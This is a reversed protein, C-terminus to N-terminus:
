SLEVEWSREVKGSRHLASRESRSWAVRTSSSSRPHPYVPILIFPTLDLGSVVLATLYVLALGAVVLLSRRPVGGLEAGRALWHPLDGDRALSAGLRAFAGLHANLVGLAVVAAIVAVFALGVRPLTTAVLDLLIVALVIVAWRPGGFIAVVSSAGLIAVVPTGVCVGFSFPYGAMRAPSRGLTLRVFTAVGGADPYRSALAAIGLASGQLLGIRGELSPAAAITSTITSATNSTGM